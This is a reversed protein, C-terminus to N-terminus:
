KRIFQAVHVAGAKDQITLSYIGPALQQVPVGSAPQLSGNLMVQGISNYVSYSGETIGKLYLMDTTPNPYVVVDKKASARSIGVNTIPEYYWRQEEDPTTSAGYYTRLYIPNGQSNYALKQFTSDIPLGNDISRSSVSDPMSSANLHRREEYNLIWSRATTDWSYSNNYTVMTGVYGFTDKSSNGLSTGDFFKLITRSPMTGAAPYLFDIQIVTINVGPGIPFDISVQVPLGAANNVYVLQVDPEFSNTGPNWSESSDRVVFGSADYLFFDRYSSDYTGSGSNYQATTTKILRNASNYEFRTVASPNQDIVVKGASNYKRIAIVSSTSSGPPNFQRVSDYHVFGSAPFPSPYDGGNYYDQYLDQFNFASSRAGSYKFQMSDLFQSGPPQSYDYSAEAALRENGATAKHLGDTTGRTAHLIQQLKQRLLTPSSGAPLVVHPITPSAHQRQASLEAFSSLLLAASLTLYRIM